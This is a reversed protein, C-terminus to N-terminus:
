LIKFDIKSSQKGGPGVKLNKIVVYNMMIIAGEIDENLFAKCITDHGKQGKLLVVDGNCIKLEKAKATSIAITSNDYRTSQYVQATFLSNKKVILRNPAEEKQSIEIALDKKDINDPPNSPRHLNSPSTFTKSPTTWTQLYKQLFKNTNYL